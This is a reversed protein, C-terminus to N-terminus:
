TTLVERVATDRTSPPMRLPTLEPIPIRLRFEDSRNARAMELDEGSELIASDRVRVDTFSVHAHDTPMNFTWLYEEVTFGPADVPVLFATIGEGSGPAGSTRAFILDHSAAHVGTNWTKEGNIVWGVADRQAFTEMFTADSGHAPETIGFAFHRKGAALDDVWEAKQGPSGYHLMLLLGVNNGM